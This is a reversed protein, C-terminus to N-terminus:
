NQVYIIGSKFYKYRATCINILQKKLTFQQYKKKCLKSGLTMYVLLLTYYDIKACDDTRVSEGIETLAQFTTQRQM